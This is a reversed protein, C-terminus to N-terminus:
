EGEQKEKLEEYYFDKSKRKGEPLEEYLKDFAKNSKDIIRNQNSIHIMMQNIEQEYDYPKGITIHPQGQAIVSVSQVKGKKVRPLIRVPNCKEEVPSDFEIYIKM